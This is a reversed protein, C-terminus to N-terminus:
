RPAGVGCAHHVGVSPVAPPGLRPARRGVAGPRHHTRPRCAAGGHSGGSGALGRPYGGARQGGAPAVVRAVGPGGGGHVPRGAAVAAGPLEADPEATRVGRARRAGRRVVAPERGAGPRRREELLGQVRRHRRGGPRRQVRDGRRRVPRGAGHCRPGHRRGPRAARGGGQEAPWEGAHLRRPGRGVGAVRRRPRWRRVAGRGHRQGPHSRAAERPVRRRRHPGAAARHGRAAPVRPGAGHLAVGLVAHPCPEAADPQPHVVVAGAAPSHVAARLRVARVGDHRRWLGRAGQPPPAAGSGSGRRYLSAQRETPVQLGSLWAVCLWVVLARSRCRNM